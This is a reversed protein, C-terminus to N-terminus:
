ISLSNVGHFKNMEGPNFLGYLEFGILISRVTTTFAAWSSNTTGHMPVISSCLLGIPEMLLHYTNKVLVMLLKGDGDNDFINDIKM